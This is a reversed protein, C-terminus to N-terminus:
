PRELMPEGPALLLLREPREHVDDSTIRKVAWGASEWAQQKRADEGIDLHFPRGDVEVILREIPWSLDAEEGAIRVNLRPLPRGAERLVELARIEAGSRARDLPLGAYRSVTQALRRSGRRGRSRALQDGIAALTTEELRVGERVARALARDGVTRALDLLTRPVTTIPVGRLTGVDGALTTSRFALVGGHRRPGGSGPRTVREVKRPVTLLGWAVAASIHSLVSGPATLTAGMWRGWDDDLLPAVAFVGQEVIVLRGTAVRHEIATESIGLDFLQRRSIRNFQAGAM